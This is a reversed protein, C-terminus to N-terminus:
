KWSEQKALAICEGVLTISGTVIIADGSACLGRAVTIAATLSEATHVRDPGAVATVSKALADADIARDSQSQTVIFGDVYQSRSRLHNGLLGQRRSSRPRV